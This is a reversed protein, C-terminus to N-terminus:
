MEWRIRVSAISVPGRDRNYAPNAIRQFDGSLTLGTYLHVAYHTELIQEPL